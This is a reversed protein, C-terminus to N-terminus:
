ASDGAPGTAAVFLESSEPVAEWDPVPAPPDPWSVTHDVFGSMWPAAFPEGISEDPLFEFAIYDFPGAAVNQKTWSNGDTPPDQIIFIGSAVSTTALAAVAGLFVRM